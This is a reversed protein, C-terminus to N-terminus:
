ERSLPFGCLRAVRFWALIALSLDRRGERSFALILADRAGLGRQRCGLGGGSVLVFGLWRIGEGKMPKCPYTKFKTTECISSDLPVRPCLILDAM